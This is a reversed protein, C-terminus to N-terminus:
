IAAALPHSPHYVLLPLTTPTGHSPGRPRESAMRSIAIAAEQGGEVRGWRVRV